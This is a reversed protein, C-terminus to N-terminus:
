NAHLFIKFLIIKWSRDGSNKERSEKSPRPPIRTKKHFTHTFVTHFLLECMTSAILICISTCLLNCSCSSTVIVRNYRQLISLYTCIQNQPFLPKSKSVLIKSLLDDNGRFM